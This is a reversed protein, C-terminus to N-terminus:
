ILLLMGYLFDDHAMMILIVIIELPSAEYWWLYAGDVTGCHCTNFGVAAKNFECGVVVVIIVGTYRYRAEHM